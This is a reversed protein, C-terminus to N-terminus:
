VVEIIFAGLTCMGRYISKCYYRYM